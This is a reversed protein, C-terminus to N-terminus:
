GTNLEENRLQISPSSPRDSRRLPETGASYNALSPALESSQDPFGYGETEIHHHLLHQALSSHVPSKKWFQVFMVRSLSLVPSCLAQSFSLLSKNTWKVWRARVSHWHGWLFNLSLFGTNWPSLAAVTISNHIANRQARSFEIHVSGGRNPHKHSSHFHYWSFGVANKEMKLFFFFWPPPSSIPYSMHFTRKVLLCM